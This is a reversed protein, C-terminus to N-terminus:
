TARRLFFLMWALVGWGVSQIAGFLIALVFRTKGRPLIGLPSRWHKCSYYVALPATIFTFITAPYLFFPLTALSLAISDHMTRRNDFVLLKMTTAASNLCGPCLHRGEMACDCIHCLFRGCEDCPLVARSQPHYFCSAESQEQIAEPAVVLHVRNIAPFVSVYTLQGCSKCHEGQPNNWATVEVPWQCAACRVQGM